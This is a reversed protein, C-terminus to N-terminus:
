PEKKKQEWKRVAKWLIQRMLEARNSYGLTKAIESLKDLLERPMVVTLKVGKYRPRGVSM